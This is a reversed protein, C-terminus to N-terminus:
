ALVRNSKSKSQNTEFPVSRSNRLLSKPVSIILKSESFCRQSVATVRVSSSQIQDSTGRGSRSPIQTASRLPPVSSCSAAHSFFHESKCGYFFPMPKSFCVWAFCPCLNSSVQSPPSKSFVHNASVRHPISKCRSSSTNIRNSTAFCPRSLAFVRMADSVVLNSAVLCHLSFASYVLGLVSSGLSCFPVAFHRFPTSSRQHPNSYHRWSDSVFLLAEPRLPFSHRDMSVSVFPMTCFRIQPALFHMPVANVSRSCSNFEGSLIHAPSAHVRSSEVLAPYSKHRDSSSRPSGFHLPNSVCRPSECLFQVSAVLM